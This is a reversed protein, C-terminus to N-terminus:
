SGVFRCVIQLPNGSWGDVEIELILQVSDIAGGKESCFCSGRASGGGRTSGNGGAVSGEDDYNAVVMRSALIVFFFLLMHDICCQVSVSSPSLPCSNLRPSLKLNQLSAFDLSSTENGGRKEIAVSRAVLGRSQILSYGLSGLGM